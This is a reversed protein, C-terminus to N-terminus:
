IFKSRALWNHEIELYDNFPVCIDVGNDFIEEVM